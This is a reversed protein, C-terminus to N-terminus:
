ERSDLAKRFTAAWRSQPKMRIYAKMHYVAKEPDPMNKRYINALDVHPEAYDPSLELSREFAAVAEAYREEAQCVLGINHHYLGNKKDYQIAKELMSQARAFEQRNYYIIAIKNYVHAWDSRIAVAKQFLELATDHQGVANHASALHYLKTYAHPDGELSRQLSEIAEPYRGAFYYSRGLYYAVDLRHPNAQRAKLGYAIAEPFRKRQEMSFLKVFLNDAKLNSINFFLLALGAAGCAFVLTFGAWRPSQIQRPLRGGSLGDLGALVGLLAFVFLPPIAMQFPFTFVGNVLFGVLAAAIGITVLRIEPEVAPSLMRRIRHAATAFVGLFLGLGILGMEATIQLFVNHAKAIGHRVNYGPKQVAHLFPPYAVRFNGIGYGWIPRESIMALINQWYRLRGGSVSFPNRSLDAVQAAAELLNERQHAGETSQIRSPLFSLIFALCVASVAYGALKKSFRMRTDVRRTELLFLCALVVTSLGASVWGARSRAYLLFCLSFFAAAGALLRESRQSGGFAAAIALPFVICIVQVATNKNGFTAAPAYLQLFWDLGFLYQLCGIASIGTAAVLFAVILPRLSKINGCCSGILFFLIGCSTWHILLLFGEYRNIAWLLSVGSWALFLFVPYRLPSGVIDAQKEKWVRLIWSFLIFFAATQIFVAKPLNAFDDLGSASGAGSWICFPAAALLVAMMTAFRKESIIAPHGSHM